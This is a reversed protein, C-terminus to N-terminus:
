RPSKKKPEMLIVADEDDDEIEISSEATQKTSCRTTLALCIRKRYTNVDDLTWQRLVIDNVICDATMATFVGCDLLNHQKPGRKGHEIMEWSRVDPLLGRLWTIVITKHADSLSGHLSDYHEIRQKKPFVVICTWHAGAHRPFILLDLDAFKEKRRKWIKSKSPDDTGWILSEFISVKKGRTQAESEVIRLFGNILNDNLWSDDGEQNPILRLFDKSNFELGLCEVDSSEMKAKTMVKQVVAEEEETLPLPNGDVGWRSRTEFNIVVRNRQGIKAIEAEKQPTDDKEHKEQKVRVRSRKGQKYVVDVNSPHRPKNQNLVAALEAEAAANEANSAAIKKKLEAAIEKKLEAEAAAANEKKITWALYRADEAEKATKTRKYFYLVGNTKPNLKKDHSLMQEYTGVHTFKPKPIDDYYTWTGGCMLYATYHGPTFVVIGYLTIESGDKFVIDRSPTISTKVITQRGRENVLRGMSFILIPPATNIVTHITSHESVDTFDIFDKTHAVILNSRILQLISKHANQSIDTDNNGITETSTIDLPESGDFLQLIYSLFRTTDDMQGQRYDKTCPSLANRLDTCTLSTADNTQISKAIKKLENQVAKRNKLLCTESKERAKMQEGLLQDVFDNQEAFLVVLPADIYCSNGIWKLGKQCKLPPQPPPQKPPPPPPQKPPPPPPQKPLQITIDHAESKLSIENSNFTVHVAHNFTYEKGDLTWEEGDQDERHKVLEEYDQIFSASMFVKDQPLFILVDEDNDAIENTYLVYELKGQLLLVDKRVYKNNGMFYVGPQFTFTKGFSINETSRLRM